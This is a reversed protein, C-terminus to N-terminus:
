RYNSPLPKPVPLSRYTTTRRKYTSTSTNTGGMSNTFIGDKDSTFLFGASEHVGAFVSAADKKGSKDFLKLTGGESDGSLLALGNEKGFVEVAGIGDKHVGLVAKGGSQRTAVAVGNYLFVGRGNHSDVRVVGGHDIEGLLAKTSGDEGFVGIAGRDELLELRIKQKGSKNSLVIQGGRSTAKLSLQSTDSDGVFKIQGRDLDTGLYISPQNESDVIEIQRVRLKNVIENSTGQANVSNNDVNGFHYGIITLLSGIVMYGIKTSVKKM